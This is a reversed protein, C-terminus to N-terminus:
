VIVTERGKIMRKGAMFVVVIFVFVIESGAIQLLHQNSALGFDLNIFPFFLVVICFGIKNTKNTTKKKTNM